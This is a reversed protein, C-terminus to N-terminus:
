FALLNVIENITKHAQRCNNIYEYVIHRTAFFTGRHWTASPQVWMFCKKTKACMGFVNFETAILAHSLRHFNVCIDAQWKCFISFLVPLSPRPLISDKERDILIAPSLSIEWSFDLLTQHM